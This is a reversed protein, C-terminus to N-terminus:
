VISAVGVTQTASCGAQSLGRSNTEYDILCIEGSLVANKESVVAGDCRLRGKDILRQAERMKFGLNILIEYAKQSSAIAIFKNVYPM